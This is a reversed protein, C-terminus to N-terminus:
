MSRHLSWMKGGFSLKRHWSVFTRLFLCCVFLCVLDFHERVTAICWITKWQSTRCLWSFSLRKSDIVKSQTRECSIVVNILCCSWIWADIKSISILITIIQTSLINLLSNLHREFVLVTWENKQRIYSCTTIDTRKVGIPFIGRANRFEISLTADDSTRTQM